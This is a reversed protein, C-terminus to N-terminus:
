AVVGRRRLVNVVFDALPLDTVVPVYPVGRQRCWTGIDNQWHRLAEQYRAGTDAEVSIEVADGTEDDILRLDGDLAPAIEEPSLIHIVTLDYRAGLALRLAAHWEPDYLDSLLLMPGPRRVAATYRRVAAVLNTGGDATMGELLAMLQGVAPRGRLPRPPSPLTTSFASVAAWELNALAVYGIAAALRRAFELKAPEGWGMSRSADILLHVTTDEEEVFLKLFFRELRAYANWDVQRLDDGPSYPRFDAFEVSQGHKPSRREGRMVGAHPRRSVVTLRDLQRRLDPALLPETM